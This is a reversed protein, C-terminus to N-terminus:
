ACVLTNEHCICQGADNQHAAGIHAFGGQEVPKDAAIPGDGMVAGANGAVAHVTHHAALVGGNEAYHIRAADGKIGM